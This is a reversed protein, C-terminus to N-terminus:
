ASRQEESRRQTLTPDISNGCLCRVVFDDHGGGRRRFKTGRRIRGIAERDRYFATIRAFARANDERFKSGTAHRREVPVCWALGDHDDASGQFNLHFSVFRQYRMAAIEGVHRGLMYMACRAGARGRAEDEQGRICGKIDVPDIRVALLNGQFGCQFGCLVRCCWCLLWLM